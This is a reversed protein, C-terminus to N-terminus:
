PSMVGPYAQIYEYKPTRFNIVTRLVIHSAALQLPIGSLFFLAKFYRLFTVHGFVVNLLFWWLGRVFHGHVVPQSISPYLLSTNYNSYLLNFSIVPM